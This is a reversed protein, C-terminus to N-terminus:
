DREALRVKILRDPDIRLRHSQAILAAHKEAARIVNEILERSLLFTEVDLRGTRPELFRSLLLTATALHIVPLSPRWVRTEVNEVEANGTDELVLSAMQNISLRRITPPLEPLQGAAIEKLFGIAMRGAAMRDRLRRSLTRLDKNVEQPTRLAYIPKIRQPSLAWTPDLECTARLAHYCLSAHVAGRAEEESKGPYALLTILSAGAEYVEVRNFDILHITMTTKGLAPLVAKRHPGRNV